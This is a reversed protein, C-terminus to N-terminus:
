PPDPPKSSLGPRGYLTYFFDYPGIRIAALVTLLDEIRISTQGQVLRCIRSDSWGCRVAIERQTLYSTEILTRLLDRTRELEADVGM